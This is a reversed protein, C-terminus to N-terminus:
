DDPPNHEIFRVASKDFEDAWERERFQEDETDKLSKAVSEANDEVSGRQFPLLPTVKGIRRWPFIAIDNFSRSGPYPLFAGVRQTKKGEKLGTCHPTL